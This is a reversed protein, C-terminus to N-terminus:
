RNNRGIPPLMPARASSGHNIDHNNESAQYPTDSDCCPDVAYSSRYNSHRPDNKNNKHFNNFVDYPEYYYNARRPMTSSKVSSTTSSSLDVNSYYTRYNILIIVFQDVIAYQYQSM